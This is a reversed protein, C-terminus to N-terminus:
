TKPALKISGNHVINFKKEPQM